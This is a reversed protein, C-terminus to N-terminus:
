MFKWEQPFFAARDLEWRLALYLSGSESLHDSDRYLIEDEWVVRCHRMDQRYNDCFYRSSVICDVNKMERSVERIVRRTYALRRLAQARQAGVCVKPQRHKTRQQLEHTNGRRKRLLQKCLFLGRGVDPVESVLVVKKGGATIEKVTRRLAREFVMRSENLGPIDATREQGREVLRYEALSKSRYYAGEEVSTSWRSVLFVHSFNGQAIGRRWEEALEKCVEMDEETLRGQGVGVSKRVKSVGFLPSCGPYTVVHFRVGYKLGIYNGFVMMRGAHSDGVILAEDVRAEGGVELATLRRLKDVDGGFIGSRRMGVELARESVVQMLSGVKEYSREGTKEWVLRGGGAVVGAWAVFGGVLVIGRWWVERAVKEGGKLRWVREVGCNMALALSGTVVVAVVWGLEEVWDGMWVIIPWHVLYLSYSVRGAWGMWSNGLVWGGVRSRSGVAIVMGAGVCPVLAALGPFATDASYLGASGLMCCLGLVVGGDALWRAVPREVHFALQAGLLLEWARNHALYFAANPSRAVARQASLLSFM